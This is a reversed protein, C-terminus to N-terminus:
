SANASPGWAAAAVPTIPSRNNTAAARIPLAGRSPASPWRRAAISRARTPHEGTATGRAARNECDM